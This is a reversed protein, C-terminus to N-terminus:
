PAVEVTYEQSLTLHMKLMDYSAQFRPAEPSDFGFNAKCYVTVARKILTDEDDEVKSSLVGALRLDDRAAAILDAVETDFFTNAPMIRLAAKVDELIAM